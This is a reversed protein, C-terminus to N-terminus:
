LRYYQSVIVYLCGVTRTFVFYLWFVTELLCFDEPIKPLPRSTKSFLEQTLAIEDPPILKIRKKM